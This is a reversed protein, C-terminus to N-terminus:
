FKMKIFFALAAAVVAPGFGLWPVISGYGMSGRDINESHYALTACINALTLIVAWCFLQLSYM